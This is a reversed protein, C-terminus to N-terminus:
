YWMLSVGGSGLRQVGDGAEGREVVRQQVLDAQLVDRDDAVGDSAPDGRLDRQQLRRPDAADHQDVRDTDLNRAVRYGVEEGERRVLDELAAGPGAIVLALRLSIATGRHRTRGHASCRLAPRQEADASGSRLTSIKANTVILDARLAEGAMM